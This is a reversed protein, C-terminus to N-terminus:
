VRSELNRLHLGSFLRLLKHVISNCGFLHRFHCRPFGGALADEFPGCGGLGNGRGGLCLGFGCRLCLRLPLLLSGAECRCLFAPFHLGSEPRIAGVVLIVYSRGLFLEPSPMLGLSRPERALCSRACAFNQSSKVKVDSLISQVRSMAGAHQHMIYRYIYLYLLM